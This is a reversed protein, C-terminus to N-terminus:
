SFELSQPSAVASLFLTKKRTLDAGVSSLDFNFKQPAVTLANHGFFIGLLTIVSRLHRGFGVTFGIHAVPDRPPELDPASGPDAHDSREQGQGHQGCRLNALAKDVRRLDVAHVVNLCHRVAGRLQSISLPTVMETGASSTCIAALPSTSTLSRITSIAASTMAPPPAPPIPAPAMAAPSPPTAAAAAAALLPPPPPPPPPGAGSGTSFESTRPALPPRLLPLM